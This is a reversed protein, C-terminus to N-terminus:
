LRLPLIFGFAVLGVPVMLVTAIAVSTTAPRFANADIRDMQRVYRHASILVLLTGTLVLVAALGRTLPRGPALDRTLSEAVALGLAVLAARPPAM